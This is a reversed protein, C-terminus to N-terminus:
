SGSELNREIWDPSLEGTVRALEIRAGVEAARSEVLAARADFLQAEATLYDTQTGAGADLSLKEIRVVEQSQRVALNLAQVRERSSELAALARDLGDGLNQRASEVQAEAARAAASAADQASLRSGGAFLPYSLQLGAQWEGAFGGPSSGYETYRGVAQLRPLWAARAEWRGARAASLRRQAQALEPSHSLAVALLSARDQATQAAERVRQLPRDDLSTPAAGMLRALQRAAVVRNGAATVSDARARALAAEARLVAVPASSGQKLMRQARDREAILARVRAGAASEVDRASRLKLYTEAVTAIVRARAAQAGRTAAGALARAQSLRALRQGDWLTWSLSLAGQLLTRQFAPPHALSFGHLPAVVMPLEFRMASGDTVLSPLLASRASGIGAAAEDAQARAAELAPSTGLAARVATSLTLVPGSRAAVGQASVGGAVALVALVGSAVAGRSRLSM